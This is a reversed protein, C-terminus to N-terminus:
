KSLGCITALTFQIKTEVKMKNRDVNSSKQCEFDLYGANVKGRM